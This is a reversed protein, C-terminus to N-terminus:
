GLYSVSRVACTACTLMVGGVVILYYRYRYLEPVPYRCINLDLMKFGHAHVAETLMHVRLIEIRHTCWSTAAARCRLMRPDHQVQLDHQVQISM